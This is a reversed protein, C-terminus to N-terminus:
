GLWYCPLPAPIKLLMTKVPSPDVPLLSFDNMERTIVYGREIKKQSCFAALGKM